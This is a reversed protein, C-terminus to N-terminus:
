RAKVHHPCANRAESTASVARRRNSIWYNTACTIRLSDLMTLDTKFSSNAMDMGEATWLHVKMCNVELGSRVWVKLYMTQLSAENYTGEASHEIGQGHKM